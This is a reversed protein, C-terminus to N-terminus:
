IPDVKAEEGGKGPLSSGDVWTGDVLLQRAIKPIGRAHDSILSHLMLLAVRGIEEPNQSGRTGAPRGQRKALIEPCAALRREVKEFDWVFQLSDEQRHPNRRYCPPM